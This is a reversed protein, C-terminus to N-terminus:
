VANLNYEAGGRAGAAAGGRVAAGRRAGGGAGRGRATLPWLNVWKFAFKSVLNECKITELTSDGFWASELAIPDVSNLLQVAAGWRTRAVGRRGDRRAAARAPVRCRGSVRAAATRPAAVVGRPRPARRPARPPRGVVSRRYRIGRNSRNSGRRDNVCRGRSGRRRRGGPAAGTVGHRRWLRLAVDRSGGGGPVLARPRARRRARRPPAFDRPQPRGGRLAGASPVRRGPRLPVVQGM